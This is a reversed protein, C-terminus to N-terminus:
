KLESAEGSCLQPPNSMIRALFAPNNRLYRRWLRRPDRYLRYVWELGTPRIWAPAEPILGAHVDFAGGVGVLAPADVRDMASAMWREQKPTSLGVWILDAGSANIQDVIEADEEPSLEGFPPSLTGCSRFGAFRASLREALRQATGPAGGYFFSRWGRKAARECLALMLDAGRVRGIERAGAFRGAWFVPAGDPVTLGSDNHIQRLEPDRHSEMVGHVGTVCVYHQERYDIWRAVEDVAPDISTASIAVGCVDVRRM